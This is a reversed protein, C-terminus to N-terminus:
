MQRPAAAAVAPLLVLSVQSFHLAFPSSSVAPATQM